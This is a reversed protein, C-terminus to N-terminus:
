GDRREGKSCFDTPQMEEDHLKCWRFKTQYENCDKCRVVPQVDATPVTEIALRDLDYQNACSLEYGSDTWTMPREGLADIAAKREIYNGM